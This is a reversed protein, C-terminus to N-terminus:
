PCRGSTNSLFFELHMFVLLDDIPDDVEGVIRLEYRPQASMLISSVLARGQEDVHTFESFMYDDGETVARYLEALLTWDAGSNQRIYLQYTLPVAFTPGQLTDLIEVFSNATDLSACQLQDEIELYRSELRLDHELSPHDEAVEEVAGAMEDFDIEAEHIVTLDVVTNNPPVSPSNRVCAGLTFALLASLIITKKM